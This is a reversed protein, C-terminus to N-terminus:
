GSFTDAEILMVASAVNDLLLTFFSEWSMRWSTDFSCFEARFLAISTILLRLFLFYGSPPMLVISLLVCDIIFAM